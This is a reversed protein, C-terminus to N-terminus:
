KPNKMTYIQQKVRLNMKMQNMQYLSGCSIEIKVLENFEILYTMMLAFISIILCLGMLNRLYELYIGDQM